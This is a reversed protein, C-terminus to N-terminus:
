PRKRRTVPPRLLKKHAADFLALPIPGFYIQYFRDDHQELAVPEGVLSESLFLERGLWYISGSPRVRRIILHDPYTVEPIRRPYPRPSSRYLKDPPRNDIAEHPREHNYEHRFRDFAQQQQPITRQPPTATEQKLTRHFREHRGNQEPRGPAIREPIIGLKIWWVSLPSLGGLGVSAFPAGNDTRIVEPLGYDRFVAEFVPRVNVYRTRPVVRCQLLYRSYADTITLPDCRTGDGTQFWGKFDACWVANPTSCTRFPQSYPPGRRSRRRPMVMGYRTLIRGITSAAPWQTRACHQDLWARLKRPGWCEHAQRLALIASVMEETIEGSYHQPARSRDELGPLGEALYRGVWKHGTKRSIGYERCLAALSQEQRLYASLFQIREDM